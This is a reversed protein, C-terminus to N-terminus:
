KLVWSLVNKKKPPNSAGYDKGLHCFFRMMLDHEKVLLLTSIFLVSLNFQIKTIFPTNYVSKHHPSFLIGKSIGM